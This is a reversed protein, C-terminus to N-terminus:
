QNACRSEQYYVDSVKFDEAWQLILRADSSCGIAAKELEEVIQSLLSSATEVCFSDTGTM